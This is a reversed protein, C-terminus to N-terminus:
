QTAVREGSQPSETIERFQVAIPLLQSSFTPLDVSQISGINHSDEYYNSEGRGRKIFWERRPPALAKYNLVQGKNM